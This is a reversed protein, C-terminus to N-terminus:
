QVLESAHVLTIGSEQLKPLVEPLVQATTPRFHCIAVAEGKRQVVEILHEFQGRIYSPAKENDLFVDRAAARLGVREAVDYAVTDSTTRSDVFYLGKAKIPKLFRRMANEDATFQSGAHNNVGVAGPVQALANETLERVQRETMDTSLRGPFNCHAMPMHLMVEFGLEVARQATDKAFPTNPLIALTLGTDLALIAETVSGGYGGDDVIIAVRKRAHAEPEGPPLWRHLEAEDLGSSELDLEEPEPLAISLIENLDLERIAQALTPLQVPPLNEYWAPDQPRTLTVELCPNGAYSAAVVTKGEREIHSTVRVEESSSAEIRAVVDAVAVLGPLTADVRTFTWRADANEKDVPESRALESSGVGVEHLLAVVDEALEACAAGLDRRPPRPPPLAKLRVRAFRREALYLGLEGEAGSRDVSSVTVSRRRMARRILEEFGALSFSDPVGVDFTYFYWVASDDSVLGGPERRIDEPSIRNNLLLQEFADALAETEHRLNVPRIHMFQVLFVGCVAAAALLGGLGLGLKLWSYPLRLPTDKPLDPTGLDEATAPSRDPMDGSM